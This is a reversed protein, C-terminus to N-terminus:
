DLWGWVCLKWKGDHWTCLHHDVTEEIRYQLKMMLNSSVGAPTLSDAPLYGFSMISPKSYEVNAFTRFWAPLEVTKDSIILVYNALDAMTDCVTNTDSITDVFAWAAAIISSNADAFEFARIYADSVPKSVLLSLSGTSNTVLDRPVRMENFYPRFIVNGDRIYPAGGDELRVQSNTWLQRCLNIDDVIRSQMAPVLNTAEFVVDFSNTGVIVQAAASSAALAIIILSKM